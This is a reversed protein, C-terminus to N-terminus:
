RDLTHFFLNKVFLFDSDPFPEEDFFKRFQDYTWKSGESKRVANRMRFLYNKFVIRWYLPRIYNAYQTLYELVYRRLEEQEAEDEKNNRFDEEFNGGGRLDSDKLM